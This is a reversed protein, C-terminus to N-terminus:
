GVVAEFRMLTVRVKSSKVFIIAMFRQLEKNAELYIIDRKQPTWSAGQEDGTASALM